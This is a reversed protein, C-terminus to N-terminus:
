VAWWQTSNMMVIMKSKWGVQHCKVKSHGKQGCCFCNKDGFGCQRPDHDWGCHFCDKVQRGDKHGGSREKGQFQRCGQSKSEDQVKLVGATQDGASIQMEKVNRCAAEHSEVIQFAHDLILDGDSVSLIKEQIHEDNIVAIFRDCLARTVFQGFNCPGALQQLEALFMQVGEEKKCSWSYFLLSASTEFLTPKFHNKVLDLVAAFTKNWTHRPSVSKQYPPLDSVCCKCM